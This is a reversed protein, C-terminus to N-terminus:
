GLGSGAEILYGLFLLLWASHMSVVQVVRAILYVSYEQAPIGIQGRHLHVGVQLLVSHQPVRM